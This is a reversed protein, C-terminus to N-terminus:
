LASQIITFIFISTAFFCFLVFFMACAVSRCCNTPWLRSFYVWGQCLQWCYKKQLDSYILTSPLRLIFHKSEDTFPMKWVALTYLVNLTIQIQLHFNFTSLWIVVIFRMVLALWCMKCMACNCLNSSLNNAIYSLFDRGFSSQLFQQKISLWCSLRHWPLSAPGTFLNWM